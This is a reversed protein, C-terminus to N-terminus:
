CIGAPRRVPKGNEDLDVAFGLSEFVEDPVHGHEDMYHYLM